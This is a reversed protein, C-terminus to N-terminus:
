AMTGIVDNQWFPSLHVTRWWQQPWGPILIKTICEIKKCKIFKWLVMILRYSIVKQTLQCIRCCTVKCVAFGNDIDIDIYIQIRCLHSVELTSYASTLLSCLRKWINNLHIEVLLLIMCTTQCLIGGRHVLWLSLGNLPPVPVLLTYHRSATTPQCISNTAVTRLRSLMDFKTSNFVYFNLHFNKTVTGNIICSEFALEAKWGEPTPLHTGAEAPFAFAPITWETLQHVRPTCTFSHSVKLVRAM